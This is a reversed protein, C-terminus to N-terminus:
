RLILTTRSLNNPGGGSIRVSRGGLTGSGSARYSDRRTTQHTRFSGRLRLGDIRGGLRYHRMGIWTATFSGRSSSFTATRGKVGRLTGRIVVKAAASAHAPAAALVPAPGTLAMLSVVVLCRISRMLALMRAGIRLDM